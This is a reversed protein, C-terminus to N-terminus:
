WHLVRNSCVVVLWVWTATEGERGVLKAVPAADQFEQGLPALACAIEPDDDCTLLAPTAPYYGAEVLVATVRVARARAHTAVLMDVGGEDATLSRLPGEASQLRSRVEAVDARLREM